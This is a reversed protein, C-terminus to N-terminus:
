KRYVDIFPNYGKAKLENVLNDANKRDKYSGVVVRYYTDGETSTSPTSVELSHSSGTVSSSYLM